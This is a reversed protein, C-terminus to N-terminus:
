PPDLRGTSSFAFGSGFIVVWGGDQADNKVRYAVDLRTNRVSTTRTPGFRLGLGFDWGTRRKLGHYWAGGYDLFGALGLASLKLFENTLTYRYEASTFFARDGTFAHQRFARPGIGLGLDFEAGPAPRRQWGRGGHLVALQRSGPRLFATAALHVSGSDLGAATFRGLATAYLQVFREARGFGARFVAAPVVGDERYGFARPTLNVGLGLSTGVDIDEERGFGQLGTSVVYRARRWQLFGGVAGTTTRGLTDVRSEAAYDDRRLQGSLGVRLYGESSARLALAVSGYGIAYRRQLSDTAEDSGDFFRLIRVKRTDGAVGWSARDSLAFFPKSLAAFALNGDSRDEYQLALGIRGPLLRLQRFTMTFMSRDPHHRYRLGLYTATGLFNNDAIGLTPVITSGTSSINAFIKTSWGDATTLRVVLGSDTRVSDVLVRRFIGLGRLNRATEQVAASDYPEGPRFLLERSVVSPRTTRHLSNTLRTLFSNAEGPAFINLRRIEIARVLTSSDRVPASQARAPAPLLAALAAAAYRHFHM